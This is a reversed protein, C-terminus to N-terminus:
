HPTSLDRSQVGAEPSAHLAVSHEIVGARNAVLTLPVSPGLFAVANETMFAQEWASLIPSHRFIERWTSALNRHEPARAFLHWAGGFMMKRAFPYPAKATAVIVRELRRVFKARLEDDFVWEPHGFSCYVNPYRTCLSVVDCAWSREWEDDGNTSHPMTWGVGGGSHSLCLRLPSLGDIELVVRWHAPSVRTRDTASVGEMGAPACHAFLPVDLKVCLNFLELNRKDAPSATSEAFDNSDVTGVPQDGNPPCFDVGIYGRHDLARAAIGVADDRLPCYAVVAYLRGQHAQTLQGLRDIQETAYLFRSLGARDHPDMDALHHVFVSSDDWLTLLQQVLVSERNLMLILWRLTENGGDVFHGVARVVRALRERNTGLLGAELLVSVPYDNARASIDISDLYTVGETVWDSVAALDNSSLTRAIDLVLDSTSVEIEPVFAQLLIGDLPSAEDGDVRTLRDLIRAAPKALPMPVGGAELVTQIPIYALNFVHSHVDIMDTM